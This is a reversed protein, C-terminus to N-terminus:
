NQEDRAKLANELLTRTVHGRMRQGDAAIRTSHRGAMVSATARQRRNPV